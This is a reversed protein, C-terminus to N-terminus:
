EPGDIISSHMLFHLAALYTYLKVLIKAPKVPHLQNNLSNEVEVMDKSESVRRPGFLHFLVILVVIYVTDEMHYIGDALM